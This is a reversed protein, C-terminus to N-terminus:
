EAKVFRWSQPESKDGGIVVIQEDKDSLFWNYENGRSSLLGIVYGENTQKLFWSWASSDAAICVPQHDNISKVGLSSTYGAITLACWLRPTDSTDENYDLRWTQSYQSPDIPEGRLADEGYRISAYCDPKSSSQIHYTGPAPYPM